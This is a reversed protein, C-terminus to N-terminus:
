QLKSHKVEVFCRILRHVMETSKYSQSTPIGKTFCDIVAKTLNHSTSALEQPRNSGGLGNNSSGIMLSPNNNPCQDLGTVVQGNNYKKLILNL